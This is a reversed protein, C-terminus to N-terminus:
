LHFIEEDFSYIRVKDKGDTIAVLLTPAESGIGPLFRVEAVALQAGYYQNADEFYVSDISDWTDAVSISSLGLLIIASVITRTVARYSASTVM